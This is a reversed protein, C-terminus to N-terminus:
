AWVVVGEEGEGVEEVAVATVWPRAAVETVADLGVDAAAVTGRVWAVAVATVIDAPSGGVAVVTPPPATAAEVEEEEEDDATGESKLRVLM